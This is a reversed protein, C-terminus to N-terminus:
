FEWKSLSFELTAIIKDLILNLQGKDVDDLDNEQLLILKDVFSNLASMISVQIARTTVPLCLNCHEVFLIRYKAQTEKSDEPWAKGLTEYIVQRLKLNSERRKAVEDSTMDDDDDDPKDMQTCDKALIDQVIHYVEDFKDIKLSALINGLSELSNTKYIIEEKKSERLVM